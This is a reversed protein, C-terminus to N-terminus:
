LAIVLCRRGLEMGFRAAELLAEVPLVV